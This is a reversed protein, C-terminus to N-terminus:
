GEDSPQSLWRNEIEEIQGSEALKLLAVNLHHLHDSDLPLAFGYNQSEFTSRALRLHETPNQQVYHQLAPRDFVVAEVEGDLLRKVAQPLDTCSIDTAGFQRAAIAGTATTWVVLISLRAKALELATRFLGNESQPNTQDM